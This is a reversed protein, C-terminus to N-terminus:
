VQTNNLIGLEYKEIFDDKDEIESYDTYVVHEKKDNLCVIRHDTTDLDYVYKVQKDSPQINPIESVRKFLGEHLVHHQPTSLIGDNNLFTVDKGSFKMTGLVESNNLLVDGIEIDIIRKHSGDQMVIKTDADFCWTKIGKAWKGFKPTFAKIPGVVTADIVSGVIGVSQSMADLGGDVINNVPTMVGSFLLKILFFGIVIFVLITVLTMLPNQQAVGAAVLGVQAAM